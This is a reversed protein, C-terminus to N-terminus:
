HAILRRVRMAVNFLMLGQGIWRFARWPGLLMTGAVVGVIVLPHKAVSRVAGIARDFVLLRAEVHDIFDIIEQRQRASRLQLERRKQALQQARLSM